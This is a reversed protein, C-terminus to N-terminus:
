IFYDFLVNYKSKLMIQNIYGGMKKFSNSKQPLQPPIDGRQGIHPYQLTIGM